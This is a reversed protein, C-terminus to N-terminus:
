RSRNGSHIWIHGVGATMGSPSPTQAHAACQDGSMGARMNVAPRAEATADGGATCPVHAMTVRGFGMCVTSFSSDCMEGVAMESSVGSTHKDSTQVFLFVKLTEQYKM